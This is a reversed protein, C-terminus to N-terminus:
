VGGDALDITTAQLCGRWGEKGEGFDLVESGPFLCGPLERAPQPAVDELNFRCSSRGSRVQGAGDSESVDMVVIVILEVVLESIDDVVVAVLLSVLEVVEGGEVVVLEKQM